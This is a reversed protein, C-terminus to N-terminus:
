THTPCYPVARSPDTEGYAGIIKVSQLLGQYMGQSDIPLQM